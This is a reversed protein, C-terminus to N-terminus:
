LTKIPQPQLHLDLTNIPQVQITSTLDYTKSYYSEVRTPAQVISTLMTAFPKHINEPLQTLKSISNAEKKKEKKKKKVLKEDHIHICEQTHFPEHVTLKYIKGKKTQGVCILRPRGHKPDSVEILGKFYKQENQFQLLM